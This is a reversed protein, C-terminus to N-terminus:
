KNKIEKKPKKINKVLKIIHRKFKMRGNNCVYVCVKYKENNLRVIEDLKLTKM